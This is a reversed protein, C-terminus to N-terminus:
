DTRKAQEDEETVTATYLSEDVDGFELHDCTCVIHLISYHSLIPGNAETELIGSNVPVIKINDPCDGIAEHVNSKKVNLVDVTAVVFDGVIELTVQGVIKEVSYDAINTTPPYSGGWAFRERKNFEAVAVETASESYVIGNANPEDIHFIRATLKM